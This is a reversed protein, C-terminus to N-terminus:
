ISNKKGILILNSNFHYLKINYIKYELNYPKMFRTLDKKSLLNLNEEKAFFELGIFRLIKRHLNKPL